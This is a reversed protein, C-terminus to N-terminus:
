SIDWAFIRAEDAGWTEDPTLRIASATTNLSLNVLRQYNELVAAATEWKGDVEVEIRFAKVLSEPPRRTNQGLKHICPMNRINRNLNSDFVIRTETINQPEDFRYEIWNGCPACWSNDNDGVPRDVGNRLPEAKGAKASLSAERTLESIDRKQWPLYCDDYMLQQQLERIHKEYVARPSCSCSAALAAATGAAQGMVACTAM